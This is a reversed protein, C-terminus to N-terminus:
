PSWWSGKWQWWSSSSSSSPHREQYKWYPLPRLPREGSEQHLRNLTSLAENFHKRLPGQDESKNLSVWWNQRYHLNVAETMYHSFDQDALDDWKICVEEDRDHELMAKHFDPDRLFRNHIGKFNKKICRKKLNHAQHYEKKEPTKGYRHGHPRGKKIIYEPISLLDLTIWHCRSQGCNRELSARMHLLCHRWELIIPMRQVADQPGDRVTWVARCQARGSDNEKVDYQVPQLSQKTTSRTSSITPSPPERNEQGIWSCSFEWSTECCFTAIWTNQHWHSGREVKNDRSGCSIDNFM